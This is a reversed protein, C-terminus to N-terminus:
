NGTKTPLELRWRAQGGIYNELVIECAYTGSGDKKKGTAKFRRNKPDKLLSKVYTEKLPGGTVTQIFKDDGWLIFDCTKNTKRNNECSYFAKQKGNKTFERKHVKAGCKPCKGVVSATDQSEFKVDRNQTGKEKSVLEYVMAKVENVFDQPNYQGKAILHMKYEWEATMDPKTLPDPLVKEVMKIGRETPILFTKERIIYNRRILDEIINARTAPTGLGRGSLSEKIVKEEGEITVKGFPNEMRAILTGDTYESPPTTQKKVIEANDVPYSQGQALEASANELQNEKEKVDKKSDKKPFLIEQLARYGKKIPVRGTAKFTEQEAELVVTSQNYIYDGAMALIFRSIILHYIDAEMRSLKNFDVRSVNKTPLLAPHDAVKSNDVIRKDINLGDTIVQGATSTYTGTNCKSVHQMLPMMEQVMDSTIYQSDTRPYTSLKKEYLSQAAKLTDQASYKFVKSAEQQLSSLSHLQPRNEKKQEKKYTIVTAPKGMVKQKVAQAMEAKPFSKLKEKENFWTAKIGGANITLTFYDEPKFNVIDLHRRVIESLTPSQVRGVSLPPKTEFICTYLRSGNMGILWDSMARALGAHYLNDYESSDKLHKLGDVIADTEMSSTWLRKVPVKRKMAKNYIHRQILEGEQGADGANIVYELDPRNLLSEVIKYQKATDPLVKTKWREPIIPLSEINWRKWDDRYEDPEYLGILHGVAWTVIYNNGEIYGDKAQTARVIAAITRGVSPKECVILIM